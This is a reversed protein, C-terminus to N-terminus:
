LMKNAAELSSILTNLEERNMEIAVPTVHGNRKVNLNLSVLPTQLSSINDSSLALKLQWDFDQLSTSSICNTKELLAAHIEAKRSRLVNLLAKTHSHDLDTMGALVEEDSYNNVVALTYFAKLSDLVNLSESLSLTDATDSRCSSKSGCLEDVARHCFKVCDSGPLRNLVAAM